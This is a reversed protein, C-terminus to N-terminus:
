FPYGIGFNAVINNWPKKNFTWRNGSEYRPDKLPTALDLRLVFFDLDWRIGTGGGLAIQNYFETVVFEGNPKDATKNLRWINGADVFFAGNLSKIIHFRYEINGELLIDGIKDFKASSNSPDYGGPGLTRARWARVSNPGGSFFSQEYPLVSLNRLPKGIGGAVRYVVRSKRRIPIYIRYDIDAKLFQAFPVGFILYRDLSDKQRGQYNFFTRLINGASEVGVKLFSVPKRSSNQDDKSTYIFSYKTSTTIHDQFSNKLFADNYSDLLTKFENSLTARVLLLELPILNHKFQNKNTKFTFGYDLNNIVRAFEDRAQVNLSTKLYTRPSMEKRFPLLSFPFFARPVSFSVEPGFQVTNFSGQLKRLSTANEIATKSDSNLQSQASIAGQLKIEFFEGGRFTNKNNYVISGDLGLNSSTNNGETQTTIAQKILPNCIIYCDLRSSYEKSKFFQISVNKFINLGVLQKYTLEATDKRFIQGVYLDVYNAILVKRYPLKKGNLLYVMKNNKVKITDTFQTEQVKGIIPETIIYVNQLKYKTHSALVLSDSNSSYPKSFKKIQIEVAVQNSKLNSDLNFVVYANEFNYYGNNLCYNTIRQRENSISYEDYNNGRKLLNHVTDAYILNAIKDDDIRYKISGITYAPKPVLYYTVTVRKKSKNLRKPKFLSVSDLVDNNFYGKSFLFKKLQLRTQETASSDLIVPAEGIDRYSEKTTPSEKNKLKPQKPKKNKAARKINREDCAKVRNANIEDYRLNRKIKEQKLKEEDFLNYWWVYFHFARFLKRNPKQRIFAELESTEIPLKKSKDAVKIEVRQVLYENQKLKKTPHCSTILATFFILM